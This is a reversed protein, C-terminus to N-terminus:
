LEYGGIKKSCSGQIRANRNLSTTAKNIKLFDHSINVYRKKQKM